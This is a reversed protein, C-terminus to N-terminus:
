DECRPTGLELYPRHVFRKLNSHPANDISTAGEFGFAAPLFYSNQMSALHWHTTNGELRPGGHHQSCWTLM